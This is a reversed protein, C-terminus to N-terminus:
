DTRHHTDKESKNTNQGPWKNSGKKTFKHYFITNLRGSTSTDTGPQAYYKTSSRFYCESEYHYSYENDHAIKSFFKLVDFDLSNEMVKPLRKDLENM